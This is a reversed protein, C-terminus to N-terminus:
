VNEVKILKEAELSINQIENISPGITVIIIKSRNM